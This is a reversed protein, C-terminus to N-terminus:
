WISRKERDTHRPLHSSGMDTKPCWLLSIPWNYLKSTPKSTENYSKPATLDPIKLHGVELETKRVYKESIKTKIRVCEKPIVILFYTM